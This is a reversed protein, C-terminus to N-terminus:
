NKKQIRYVTFEIEFNPQGQDGIFVGAIEEEKPLDYRKNTGSNLKKFMLRITPISKNEKFLEKEITRMQEYVKSYPNHKRIFADFKEM